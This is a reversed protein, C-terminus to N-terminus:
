FERLINELMVATPCHNSFGKEKWLAPKKFISVCFLLTAFSQPKLNSEPCSFLYFQIKPASVFGEM